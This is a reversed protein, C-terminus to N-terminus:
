NFHAENFFFIFNKFHARKSCYFAEKINFSNCFQFFGGNKWITEIALKKKIIAYTECFNHLERHSLILFFNCNRHKRVCRFIYLLIPCGFQNRKIYWDLSSSPFETPFCHSANQNASCVCRTNAWYTYMYIFQFPVFFIKLILKLKKLSLSRKSAHAKERWEKCDQM